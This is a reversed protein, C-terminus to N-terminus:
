LRYTKYKQKVCESGDSYPTAVTNQLTDRGNGAVLASTKLAKMYTYSIQQFTQQMMMHFLRAVCTRQVAIYDDRRNQLKYIKVAEDYQQM